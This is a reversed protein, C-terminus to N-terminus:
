KGLDLFPKTSFYLIAAIALGYLLFRVPNEQIVHLLTRHKGERRLKSYEERIRIARDHQYQDILSRARILQSEDNLWIAAPSIGWNGAPTEFFELGNSTLLERVDDAEDDPVDRLM